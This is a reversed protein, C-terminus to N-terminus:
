YKARRDIKQAASILQELYEAADDLTDERAMQYGFDVDTPYRFHSIEADFDTFYHLWDLQANTLNKVDYGIDDYGNTILKLEIYRRYAAYRSRNSSVRKYSEKATNTEAVLSKVSPFGQKMVVPQIDSFKNTKPVYVDGSPKTRSSAFADFDVDRELETNAAAIPRNREINQRLMGRAVNVRAEALRYEVLQQYPLAVTNKQIFIRNDRTNFEELQRLYAAKQSGNMEARASRSLRPDLESTNVAGAKRIRYLKNRTNKQAKSIAKDLETQRKKAM